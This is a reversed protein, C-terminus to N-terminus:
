GRSVRRGSGRKAREEEGDQGSRFGRGLGKERERGVM